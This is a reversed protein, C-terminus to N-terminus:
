LPCHGHPLASVDRCVQVGASRNHGLVAPAGYGRELEIPLVARKIDIQPSRDHGARRVIHTRRQTLM